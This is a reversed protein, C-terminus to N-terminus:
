QTDRAIPTTEGLNDGEDDQAGDEADFQSEGTKQFDINVVSDQATVTATKLSDAAAAPKKVATNAKKSTDDLKGTGKKVPTITSSKGSGYAAGRKKKKKKASAKAKKKEDEERKRARVRL